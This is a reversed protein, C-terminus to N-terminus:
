GEPFPDPNDEVKPNEDQEPTAEPTPVDTVEEAPTFEQNAADAENDRNTEMNSEVQSDEAIAKQVEISLSGWKDLLQKLVVKKAMTLSDALWGVGVEPGREAHLQFKDMLTQETVKESFKLSPSYIKAYHAMERTTMFLMKKFGTLEEMYAFFGEVKNSIPDQDIVIEGSVFDRKSIQGEYVVGSNLTRYQGSNKAMQVLGKYGIVFTPTAKGKNKFPLVYARGLQPNLPLHLSAAKLACQIVEAPECGQLNTNGSVLEILSNTFDASQKGIRKAFLEQVVKGNIYNKFVGLQTKPQSTALQKTETM